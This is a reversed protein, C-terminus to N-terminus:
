RRGHAPMVFFAGGPHQKLESSYFDRLQPGPSSKDGPPACRVQAKSGQFDNGGEQTSQDHSRSQTKVMFRVVPRVATQGCNRHLVGWAARAGFTKSRSVHEQGILRLAVSALCVGSSAEIRRDIMEVHRCSLLHNVMVVVAVGPEPTGLTIALRIAWPLEKAAVAADHSRPMEFHPFLDAFPNRVVPIALDLLHGLEVLVGIRSMSLHCGFDTSRDLGREGGSTASAM